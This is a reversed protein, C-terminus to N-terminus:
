PTGRIWLSECWRNLGLRTGLQMLKLVFEHLNACFRPLRAHVQDQSIAPNCPAQAQKQSKTHAVSVLTQHAPPAEAKNISALFARSVGVWSTAGM